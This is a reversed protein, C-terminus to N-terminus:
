AWIYDFTFASGIRQHLSQIPQMQLQLRYCKCLLTGLMTQAVHMMTTFFRKKRKIRAGTDSQAKGGTLLCLLRAANAGKRRRMRETHDEAAKPSCSLCRRPRAAASLYMVSRRVRPPIRPPILLRSNFGRRILSLGFSGCHPYWRGAHVLRLSLATGHSSYM